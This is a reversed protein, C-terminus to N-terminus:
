YHLSIEIKYMYDCVCFFFGNFCLLNPPAHKFGVEEQMCLLKTKKQHYEPHYSENANSPVGAEGGIRNSSYFTSSSAGSNGGKSGVMSDHAVNFAFDVASVVVEDSNKGSYVEHTEIQKSGSVRCLEDMLQLTPNLYRSNKLITAYGTFPGLPGAADRHPIATIGPNQRNIGFVKNGVSPRSSSCIYDSKFPKSDIPRDSLGNREGFQGERRNNTQSVSSLSLSLGQTNSGEGGTLARISKNALDEGNQNRFVEMPRNVWLDGDCSRGQNVQYENYSPLLLLENSDKGGYRVMDQGQPGAGASTVVEQLTNQYNYPAPSAVLSSQLVVDHNYGYSSPQKWYFSPSSINNVKLSGRGEGTFLPSSSSESISTPNNNSRNYNNFNWDGSQHSGLSKWNSCNQPDGQKAASLNLNSSIPHSLNAVAVNDASVLSENRSVYNVMDLSNICTPDYSMAGYKINRILDPHVSLQDLSSAYHEELNESNQVRLKNRRSQQAIHSDGLSFNNMEM